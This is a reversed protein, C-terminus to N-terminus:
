ASTMTSLKKALKIENSGTKGKAACSPMWKKIECCTTLSAGGQPVQILVSWHRLLTPLSLVFFFFAWPGTPNSGLVKQNGPMHGFETMCGRGM